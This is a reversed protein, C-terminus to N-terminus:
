KWGFLWQGIDVIMHGVVAFGLVGMVIRFVRRSSRDSGLWAQARQRNDGKNLYARWAFLYGVSVCSIVILEVIDHM